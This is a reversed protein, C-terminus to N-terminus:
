LQINWSFVSRVLVVCLIWTRNHWCWLCFHGLILIGQDEVDENPHESVCVRNSRWNLVTTNCVRLLNGVRARGLLRWRRVWPCEARVRPNKDGRGGREPLQFSSWHHIVTMKCMMLFTPLCPIFVPNGYCVALYSLQWILFGWIM